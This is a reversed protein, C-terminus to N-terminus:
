HERKLLVYLAGTGGHQPQASHFALVAPNKRLWQNLFNKLVPKQDVSFHGKGHVICVWRKRQTTCDNIFQTVSVMVEDVTQQHLDIMEEIPINGRKLRRIIKHQIGSKAFYISDDASSWDPDAEHDEWVARVPIPEFIKQPIPKKKPAPFHHKDHRLPKVDRTARRFLESEKKDSPRKPEHDNKSMARRNINPLNSMDTLIYCLM